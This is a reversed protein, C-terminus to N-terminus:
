AELRRYNPLLLSRRFFLLSPSLDRYLIRGRDSPACEASHKPRISQFFSHEQEEEKEEEEM